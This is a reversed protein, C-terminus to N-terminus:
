VLKQFARDCHLAKKSACRNPKLPNVIRLNWVLSPINKHINPKPAVKDTDRQIVFARQTASVPIDVALLWGEFLMTPSNVHGEGVVLSVLSIPNDLLQRIEKGREALPITRRYILLGPVSKVRSFRGLM